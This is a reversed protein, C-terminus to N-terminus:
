AKEGDIKALIRSADLLTVPEVSAGSPDRLRYTWKKRLPTLKIGRAALGAKVIHENEATGFAAIDALDKKAKNYLKEIEIKDM